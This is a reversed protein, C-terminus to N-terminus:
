LACIPEKWFSYVGVQNAEVSKVSHAM